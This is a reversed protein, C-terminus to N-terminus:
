WYFYNGGVPPALSSHLLRCNSPTLAVPFYAKGDCGQVHGDGYLMNFFKPRWGGADDIKGHNLQTRGTTGDVSYIQDSAMIRESSQPDNNRSSILSDDCHIASNNFLTQCGPSALPNSSASGAAGTVPPIGAIYQYTLLLTNSGWNGADDFRMFVTPQNASPCSLPSNWNEVPTRIETWPPATFVPPMNGPSLGADIWDDLNTGQEMWFRNSSSNLPSSPMYGAISTISDAIRSVGKPYPNGVGTIYSRPFYGKHREAFIHAAQGITRLNAACKIRNAAERSRALAPLLISILLAIIGIVVLLEVLTFGQRRMATGGSPYFSTQMAAEPLRM